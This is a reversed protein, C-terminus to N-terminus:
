INLRAHALISYIEKDTLSLHAPSLSTETHVIEYVLKMDLKAGQGYSVKRAVTKYGSNEKVGFITKVLANALEKSRISITLLPNRYSLYTWNKMDLTEQLKPAAFRYMIRLLGNIKWSRGDITLSKSYLDKALMNANGYKVTANSGRNIKEMGALKLILLLNEANDDNKNIYDGIAEFTIAEGKETLETITEFNGTVTITDTGKKLANDFLSQLSQKSIQKQSLM